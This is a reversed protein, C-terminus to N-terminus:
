DATLTEYEQKEEETMERAEFQDLKENYITVLPYENIM